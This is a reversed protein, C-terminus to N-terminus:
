WRWGRQCPAVFSLAIHDWCRCQSCEQYVAYGDDVNAAKACAPNRRVWYARIPKKGITGKAHLIIATSTWDTEPQWRKPRIQRKHNGAFHASKFNRVTVLRWKKATRWELRAIRARRRALCPDSALWVGRSICMSPALYSKNRSLTTTQWCM